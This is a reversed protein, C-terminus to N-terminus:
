FANNSSKKIMTFYKMINVKINNYTIDYMDEAYYSYEIFLDLNV